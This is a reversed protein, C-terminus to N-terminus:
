KYAKSGILESLTVSQKKLTKDIHKNIQGILQPGEFILGTALQVLSAGYTIKTLADEPSFVSGVGIITFRDKYESYTHKILNNSLEWTPKGSFNGKLGDPLIDKFDIKSRDKALNGITVFKVFEYNKLVELLKSFDDWPKDIPLKVSFPAKPKLKAVEDMLKKLRVEDTFPEGGFTNPCSINITIMEAIGDELVRKVGAVYDKIGLSDDANEPINTKGVSINLVIRDWLKKDYTHLRTLNKEIGQNALGAYVALSKTKKLRYFWPKPNGDCSKITMTGVEIMGFGVAECVAPMEANKDLGATLGVVNPFTVGHYTQVLRPSKYALSKNALKLLRRHRSLKYARSVMLDHVKDPKYKFLIPKIIRKYGFGTISSSINIM